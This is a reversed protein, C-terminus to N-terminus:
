EVEREELEALIDRVIVEINEAIAKNILEHLDVGTIKEVRFTRSSKFVVTSRVTLDGEGSVTTGHSIIDEIKRM